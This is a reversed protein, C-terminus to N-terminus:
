RTSARRRGTRGDIEATLRKAAALKGALDPHATLVALRQDEGAARFVRALASHLGAASDHAPGLELGHAREAIWPSHEFIGGLGRRVGGQDMESPRDAGSRRIPRRGTARSTSAAPSGSTRRPRRRLRPVAEAGAGRGPRGVLRCHLGISMMERGGGEAYLADFSDKLYSFFQDGANFGQPTAFRMDNADLTYPM